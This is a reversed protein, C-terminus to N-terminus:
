NQKGTLNLYRYDESDECDLRLRGFGAATTTYNATISINSQASNGSSTFTTTLDFTTDVGGATCSYQESLSINNKIGVSQTHPQQDPCKLSWTISNVAFSIQCSYQLTVEPCIIATERGSITVKGHVM